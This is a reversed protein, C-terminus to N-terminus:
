HLVERMEEKSMEQRHQRQEREKGIRDLEEKTKEHARM